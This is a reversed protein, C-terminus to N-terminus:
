HQHGELELRRLLCISADKVTIGVVGLHQLLKTPKEVLLAVAVRALFLRDLEELFGNTGVVAISL